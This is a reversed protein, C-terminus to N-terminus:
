ACYMAWYRLRRLDSLRAIKVAAALALWATAYRFANECVWDWAAYRARQAPRQVPATQKQSGHNHLRADPWGGDLALAGGSQQPGEPSLLRAEIRNKDHRSPSRNRSLANKSRPVSTLIPESNPLTPYSLNTDSKEPTM